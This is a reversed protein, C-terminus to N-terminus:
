GISYVYTALDLAVGLLSESSCNNNVNIIPIGTIGVKYLVIQGCTCDGYVYSAYVQKEIDSLTTGADSLARYSSIKNSIYM